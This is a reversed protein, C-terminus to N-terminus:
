VSVQDPTGVGERKSARGEEVLPTLMMLNAPQMRNNHCLREFQGLLKLFPTSFRHGVIGLLTPLV